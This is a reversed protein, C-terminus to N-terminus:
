SENDQKYTNHVSVNGKSMASKNAKSRNEVGIKKENGISKDGM